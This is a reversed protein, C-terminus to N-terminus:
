RLNALMGGCPAAEDSVGSRQTVVVSKNGIQVQAPLKTQDAEMFEVVLETPSSWRLNVGWSCDSRTAGYLEGAAVTDDTGARARRLKIEYGFATTAGGNTEFLIARTTGDPSTVSAVEDSGPEGTLDICGCLLFVTPLLIFPRM